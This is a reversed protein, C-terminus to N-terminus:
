IAGTTVPDTRVEGTIASKLKAVIEPILEDM